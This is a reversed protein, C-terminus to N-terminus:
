FQKFYIKFLSWSVVRQIYTDASKQPHPQNEPQPHPHATPPQQRTSLLSRLLTPRHCTQPVLSLKASLEDSHCMKLPLLSLQLKLKLFCVVRTVLTQPSWLSPQLLIRCLTGPPKSHLMLEKSWIDLIDALTPFCSNSLWQSTCYTDVFFIKKKDKNKKNTSEDSRMRYSNRSFPERLLARRKRCLTLRM